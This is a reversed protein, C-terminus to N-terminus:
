AEVEKLATILGDDFYEKRPFIMERIEEIDFGLGRLHDIFAQNHNKRPVCCKEVICGRANIKKM